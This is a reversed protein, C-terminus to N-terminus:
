MVLGTEEESAKESMDGNLVDDRGARWTQVVRVEWWLHVQTKPDRTLTDSGTNSGTKLKLM